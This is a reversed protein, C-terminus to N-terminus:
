DRRQGKSLRQRLVRLLFVPNGLVYRRWMRRPELLLRYLWEIRLDIWIKPARPVREAIFDFLAGVGIVVVAHEQLCRRAIWKEQMPNGLAVLLIDPRDAALHALIIEEGESNFYGNGVVSFRHQPHRDRLKQVALEAIGDRAGLLAVHVGRQLHTLLGPIFDTGNLNDPFAEGYLSKSAIDVGIGDAMVAFQKLVERYAADKSALNAGHANLFAYKRHKGVAITAELEAFARPKSWVKVDVGLIDRVDQPAASGSDYGPSPVKIAGISGTM